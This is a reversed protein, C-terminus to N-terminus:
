FCHGSNMYVAWTGCRPLKPRRSIKQFRDVPLFVHNNFERLISKMWRVDPLLLIGSFHSHQLNKFIQTYETHRGLSFPFPIVFCEDPKSTLETVLLDNRPLPQQLLKFPLFEILRIFSKKYHIFKLLSSFLRKKQWVPSTKQNLKRTETKKSAWDAWQAVDVDRSHWKFTCFIGLREVLSIIQKVEYDLSNQRLSCKLLRWTVAQNDGYHILARYFLLHRRFVSDYTLAHRLAYLEARTSNRESDQESAELPLEYEPPLRIEFFRSPAHDPIIYWYGFTKRASDTFLKICESPLPAGPIPAQTEIFDVLCIFLDTLEKKPTQIKSNYAQEYTAGKEHLMEQVKRIALLNLTRAVVPIRYRLASCMKGVVSSLERVTCRHTDILSVCEGFITMLKEPICKATGTTGDHDFGLFRLNWSAEIDSKSNLPLKLIFFFDSLWHSWFTKEEPTIDCEGLAMGFDDYYCTAWIFFNLFRVVENNLLQCIFPIWSGGFPQVINAYYIKEDGLDDVFCLYQCDPLYLPINNFMSTVDAASKFGPPATCEVDRTSTLCFSYKDTFPNISTGDLIPRVKHTYVLFGFCVAKPFSAPVRIAMKRKVDPLTRLRRLLKRESLPLQSHDAEQNILDKRDIPVRFGILIRQLLWIPSGIAAWFEIANSLESFTGTPENHWRWTPLRFVEHAFQTVQDRFAQARETIHEISQVNRLYHFLGENHKKFQITPPKWRQVLFHFIIRQRLTGLFLNENPGWTRTPCSTTTHGTLGCHQCKPPRNNHGFTTRKSGRVPPQHPPFITREGRNDTLVEDPIHKRLFSHLVSSNMPNDYDEHDDNSSEFTRIPASPADRVNRPVAHELFNKRKESYNLIRQRLGATLPNREGLIVPFKLRDLDAFDFQIAGFPDNDVNFDPGQVNLFVLTTKEPSEHMPESEVGRSFWIRNRCFIRVVDRKPLVLWPSAWQHSRTNHPAVLIYSHNLSKAKQLLFSAVQEWISFPPNFWMGNKFDSDPRLFINLCNEGQYAKPFFNRSDVVPLFFSLPYRQMSTIHVPPISWVDRNNHKFHIDRPVKLLDVSRLRARPQVIEEDMEGLLWADDDDHQLPKVDEEDEESDSSSSSSDHERRM